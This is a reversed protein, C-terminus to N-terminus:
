QFFSAATALFLTLSLPSRLGCCCFRRKPKFVLVIRPFVRFCGTSNLPNLTLHSNEKSENICIVGKM